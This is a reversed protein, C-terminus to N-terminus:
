QEDFESLITQYTSLQDILSKKYRKRPFRVKGRVEITDFLPMQLIFDVNTTAFTPVIKQVKKKGRKM